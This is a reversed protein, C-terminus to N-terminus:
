AAVEDISADGLKRSIVRSIGDGGMSVGYLTDAADMTRKQHTVVIFQARDSYRRVLQLFRDINIDDLAAEVEDLIYFPCPRALFVAFMFALAVLSKEGGSLLSLRKTSKGPPTVEIEVGAEPQEDEEPLAASDEEGEPADEGAIVPRPGESQVLRLRGRGGPFLHEVVEEFNKAAAEFTQEFSERIRKDTDAILGELEALAAELDARQEELEEVHAVAEDYEQKALPNVPGLQERRRNLRDVRVALGEREDEPLQEAAPEAPLGLKEAIGALDREVEASTDRVQQAAVEAGTVAESADRLGGQLEAEEHACARLAEATQEGGAAHQQLESELADRRAAVAGQAKDLAAAAREANRAIGADREIGTRVRELSRAREAREAEIRESLRREARLDAILEARRVAGPGEDPAERRRAIVWETRSVEEAAEALERAARRHAADAEDRATDAAAIAEAAQEAARAAEAEEAVARESAAILEDRRHREELVREAGGAPAQSLEGTAGDLWRGSRTVALGTFDDPLTGLSDVVWVRALLRETLAAVEPQPTVHDLLRVGPGSGSPQDRSGRGTIIASSGQDLVREGAALDEVLAASLRPGLAAALALEYGPAVDLSEALTASGDPATAATRLFQNVVALDAGAKAAKARAAEVAREAERRATRASDMEAEAATLAAQAATATEELRAHESRARELERDLSEIEDRLRAQRDTELREIERELSRIRDSPTLGDWTARTSGGDEEPPRPLREDPLPGSEGAADRAVEAELLELERARRAGRETAAQGQERVRELRMAIREAASRASFLGAQIRERERTQEAFAHEAQERRKAVEALLGEAEDRQARAARAREEAGALSARAERADDRALAYRAELTQRELREHLEAAEAQRKLPRLRSRAEREVDLARGLNEETRELKLQARRRRKRHKGLGAAEEILLRRERPRSLVIQEVKGQSVVSHMEKGLGSDSLVEIVDVLRCRAGNLRYEGEGDRGLRRVISIESFDTELRRDSNDIVVEVEAASAGQVGHGGAFIVDKMVQGRVALPSQEGLAWLVADTINSKGSGNPGVIVSVGTGFDLKTRSPFSKFGKMSISRLHM